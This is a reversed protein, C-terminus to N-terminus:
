CRGVAQEVNVATAEGITRSRMSMKTNGTM